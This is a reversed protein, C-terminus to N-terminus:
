WEAVHVKFRPGQDGIADLFDSVFLNFVEQWSDRPGVSYRPFLGISRKPLPTVGLSGIQAVVLEDTTQVEVDMAYDVSSVGSSNRIRNASEM